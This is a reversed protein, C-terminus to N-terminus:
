LNQVMSSTIGSQFWCHLRLAIRDDPAISTVIYTYIIRMTQRVTGV